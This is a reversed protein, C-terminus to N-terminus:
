IERIFNFFDKQKNFDPAGKNVWHTRKAIEGNPGKKEYSEKVIIRGQKYTDEYSDWSNGKSEIMIKMNDVNKGELEKHSYLSQAVTSVSNRVTDQQRWLFYNIVEEIHTIQFPRSDFTALPFKIIDDDTLNPFRDDGDSDNCARYMRLQNFKATALSASISCMKLVNNDFWAQTENTDFDTLLISIEDSQVFGLKAGMINSCLYEATNNMDDILGDDFPRKLGKTYTHFHAGDIRILAYCRRPLFTRTRNEYFDKMRDGLTDKAM